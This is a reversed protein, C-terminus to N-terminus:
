VRLAALTLSTDVDFDVWVLGDSQRYEHGGYDGLFRNETATIVVTRDAIALGDVTGPTQITATVDGVGGNVVHLFANGGPDYAHGDAADGATYTAELGGRVIKQVTLTGRPM